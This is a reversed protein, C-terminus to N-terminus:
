RLVGVHVVFGSGEGLGEGVVGAPVRWVRFRECFAEMWAGFVGPERLQQAVVCVTPEAGGERLACADACTEVFPRVLAENYICDAAVIANLGGPALSADPDDREWDLEVFSINRKAGFVGEAKARAETRGKKGKGTQVLRDENARLNASLTKLVYGQDTLVYRGVRGAVVLALVGSTGCGLELVSSSEGLFSFLPNTADSLWTALRPTVAWLVAGTTGGARRSELVGPAQSIELERGAM